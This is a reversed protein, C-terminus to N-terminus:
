FHYNLGTRVTSDTFSTQTGAYPQSGYDAYRYEVNASVQDALKFEVGGGATWGTHTASAPAGGGAPTVTANAFAIGAEAYPLIGDLDVGVRGRVSGEWNARFADGAALIASENTWDLDGELGTVVTGSLHVNYGIQGGALWGTSSASAAGAPTVTGWGYGVHAGIYAGDWDTAAPAVAAPAAPPAVYLDAAAATGSIGAAAIAAVLFKGTMKM